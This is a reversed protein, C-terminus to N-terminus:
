RIGALALHIAAGAVALALGAPGSPRPKGSLGALLGAFAGALGLAVGGWGAAGGLLWGAALLRPPATALLLFGGRRVQRRATALDGRQESRGAALVLWWGLLEAVSLLVIM